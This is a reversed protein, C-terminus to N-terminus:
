LYYNYSRNYKLLFQIVLLNLSFIANGGYFSPSGPSVRVALSNIKELALQTAKRVARMMIRPHVGEDVYPKLQKLIEATILVVSTTGDGVQFM